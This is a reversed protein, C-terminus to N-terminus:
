LVEVSQTPAVLVEVGEQMELTLTVWVDHVARRVPDPTLEANLARLTAPEDDRRFIGM